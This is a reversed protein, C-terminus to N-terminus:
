LYTAAPQKAIDEVHPFKFAERIIEITELCSVSPIDVAMTDGENRTLIARRPLPNSLPINASGFHHTPPRPDVGGSGFPNFSPRAASGFHNTLATALVRSATPATAFGNLGFPNSPKLKTLLRAEEDAFEKMTSYFTEVVAARRRSLIELAVAPDQEQRQPQQPISDTQPSFFPTLLASLFDIVSRVLFYFKTTAKGSQVNWKSVHNSSPSATPLFFKTLFSKSFVCLSQLCNFAAVIAVVFSL